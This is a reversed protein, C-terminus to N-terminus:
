GVSNFIEILINEDIIDYDIIKELLDFRCIKLIESVTEILLNKSQIQLYDFILEHESQIAKNLIYVVMRNDLNNSLNVKHEIYKDLIFLHLEYADGPIHYKESILYCIKDYTYRSPLNRLLYKIYDINTDLIDFIFEMMNPFDYISFFTEADITKHYFLKNLNDSM